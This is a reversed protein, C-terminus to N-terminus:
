QDSPEGKEHQRKKEASEVRHAHNVAVLSRNNGVRLGDAETTHLELALLDGPDASHHEVM